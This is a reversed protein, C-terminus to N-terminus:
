AVRWSPVLWCPIGECCGELAERATRRHHHAASGDAAAEMKRLAIMFITLAQRIPGSMGQVLGFRTRAAVVAELQERLTTELKRRREALQRLHLDQGSEETRRTLVAWNWAGPWDAALVPDGTSPQAPETTVRGALIPAGAEALANRVARVREFDERRGQLSVIHERIRTWSESIREPDSGVQGIRSLVDDRVAAALAGPGAFLGNLRALEGRSAEIEIAASRVAAALKQLEGADGALTEIDGPSMMLKPGAVATVNRRAIAAAVIAVDVSRAIRDFVNIAQPHETPRLSPAGLEPALSRWRANLSHISRRWVLYDRVHAWGDPDAPAFGAVTISDIFPKRRMERRAFATFVKKGAALREVIDLLGADAFAGAPTEVPRALFAPRRSLQSTADRAFDVLAAVDAGLGADHSYLPSLPGLWPEDAIARHAAALAELDAALQGAGHIGLAAAARRALTTERPETLSHEPVQALDRHMRAVMAPDPLQAAPPIDDDIHRLDSGLRIRADRAADVAALSMGTEALLMHPRDEFWAHADSDAVLKRVLDFPLDAFGPTGRAIEAIEEDVDMIAHRTAIVDRESRNILDAHDRPKLTEVILQLRRVAAEIHALEERDSGTLCITLDRIAGPLMDRVAHLTAGEHFVVVVRLGLALHHCVVNAIAQIKAAGPAVQAVLGDSQQLRRVLDIQEVSCPLPCFLDGFDGRARDAAHEIDIPRGVGNLARRRAAPADDGAGHALVRALMPIEGDGKAVRDLADKFREIDREVLSAARPRAFIVWRDSLTLHETADPLPEGPGPLGHGPALHIAGPDLQSGVVRLVPEFSAPVFPSVEGDREIAELIRRASDGALGAGGARRTDFGRLDAVAGVRRPRITIDNNGGVEITVLRELVPLFIERGEHRWRAVGIGWVIDCSRDTGDGFPAIGSLSAHIAVTRRRLKEAESVDIWVGLDPEVPPPDIAKLHEVRLWVPGEDDFSDLTIGPLGHLEHQHLVVHDGGALRHDTVSEVVPDELRIVEALYDLAHLLPEVAAALQISEDVATEIEGAQPGRV